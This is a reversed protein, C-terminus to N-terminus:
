EQMDLITQRLDLDSWNLNNSVSALHWRTSWLEPGREADFELRGFVRRAVDVHVHVASGFRPIAGADAWISLSYCSTLNEVLFASHLLGPTKSRRAEGVVRRYDLYTALLQLPNRLGFRTIVCVVPVDVPHEGTERLRLRPESAL